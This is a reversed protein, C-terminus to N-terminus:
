RISAKRTTTTPPRPWILPVTMAANASPKRFENMSYLVVADSALTITNTIM